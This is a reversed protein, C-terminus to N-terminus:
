QRGMIDAMLTDDIRMLGDNRPDIRVIVVACREMRALMAADPFPPKLGDPLKVNGRWAGVGAMAPDERAMTTLKQILAAIEESEAASPKERKPFPTVLRGALVFGGAEEAARDRGFIFDPLKDREGSAHPGRRKAEGM